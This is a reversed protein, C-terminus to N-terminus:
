VLDADALVVASSKGGLEMICPKLFDGCTRAIIRGTKTSGTFNVKKVAPHAIVANVLEPARAANCYVINLVGPPVGADQFVQGLAWYCRPTLESGKLITTNGAAIATAAARM